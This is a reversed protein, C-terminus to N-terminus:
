TDEFLLHPDRRALHCFLTETLKKTYRGEEKLSKSLIEACNASIIRKTYKKKLYM